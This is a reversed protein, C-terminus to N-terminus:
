WPRGFAPVVARLMIAFATIIWVHGGRGHMTELDQKSKVVPWDPALYAGLPESGLGLSTAVDQNAKNQDIFDIAGAIDQKPKEYNRVLRM